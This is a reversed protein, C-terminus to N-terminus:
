IAAKSIFVMVADREWTQRESQDECLYFVLSECVNRQWGGSRQVQCEPEIGHWASKHNSFCLPGKWVPPKACPAVVGGGCVTVVRWVGVRRSLISGRPQRGLWSAKLASASFHQWPRIRPIGPPIFQVQGCVPVRLEFLNLTENDQSTIKTQLPPKCLFLFFITLIFM